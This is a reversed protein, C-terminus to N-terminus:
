KTLSRKMMIDTQVDDGLTFLHKDFPVFGNKEYFAIAKFNQEWVGLWIYAAQMATAIAVAHQYLLQGLKKGQFAQLVYIREIEVATNDQLETQSQGFNLKLYGVLQDQFSAFYFASGPNNLEANLKPLSLDEELYKKMNDETNHAAFTEFFTKRALAQLTEADKATAKRITITDM